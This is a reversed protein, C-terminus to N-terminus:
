MREIFGWPTFGGNSEIAIDRGFKEYDIYYALNGMKELNYCGSEVAWYYGLDCEDNIDTYLNYEDINDIDEWDFGFYDAIACLTEYEWKNLTELKEAFENIKFIDDNENIRLNIDTENDVDNIFFEADDDRLREAISDLKENLEDADMPLAVWEGGDAGNENYNGWTNIYLKIM